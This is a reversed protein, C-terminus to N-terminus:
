GVLAKLAAKYDRRLNRNDSYHWEHGKPHEENWQAQLSPWSQTTRLDEEHVPFGQDHVLRQGEVKLFRRQHVGQSREAVFRFVALRRPSPTPALNMMRAKVEAKVKAYFESVAAKPVWYAATITITGQNRPSPLRNIHATLPPM